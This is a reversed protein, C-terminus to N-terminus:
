GELLFAPCYGGRGVASRDTAAAWLVGSSRVVPSTLRKPSSASSVRLALASSRQDSEGAFGTAITSSGGCGTFRQQGPREAPVADAGAAAPDGGGAPGQEEAGGLDRDPALDLRGHGGSEGSRRSRYRCREPPRRDQREDSRTRRSLCSLSTATTRRPSSAPCGARPRALLLPGIWCRRTTQHTPLPSRTYKVYWTAPRASQPSAASASSERYTTLSRTRPM